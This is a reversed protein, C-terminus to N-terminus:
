DSGHTVREKVVDADRKRLLERLTRYARVQAIKVSAHTRGLVQAIEAGTLGALRLELIQRQTAPLQRLLARVEAQEASHLAVSEPGDHNDEVEDLDDLSVVPRKRRHLDVVTNHAISFLWSRRSGKGTYTDFATLTKAFIESTADEAAERTDLRFFCYRYVDDLNERYFAAFAEDRDSADGSNTESIGHAM